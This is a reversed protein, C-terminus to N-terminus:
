PPLAVVDDIVASTEIEQGATRRRCKTKVTSPAVIVSKPPPSRMSRLAQAVLKAASAICFDITIRDDGDVRRGRNREVIIM